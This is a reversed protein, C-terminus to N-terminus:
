KAGAQLMNIYNILDAVSVLKEADEDRVEVGFEEELKMVMEVRDLSDAGLSELTSEPSIDQPAIHLQEAIMTIIRAETNNNQSM